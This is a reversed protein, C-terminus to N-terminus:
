SSSDLCGMCTNMSHNENWTDLTGLLKKSLACKKKFGLRPTMPVEENVYWVHNIMFFTKSVLTPWYLSVANSVSSGKHVHSKKSPTLIEKGFYFRYVRYEM